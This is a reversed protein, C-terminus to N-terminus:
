MVGQISSLPVSGSQGQLQLSPGNSGSLYVSQVKGTGFPVAAVAQGSGDAATVNFTYNGAPAAQGASTTGDWNFTQVGTPLAGLPLTNVTQGASNQVQVQVSQAASALTFGGAAGGSAPLSISNNDFVVTQGVLNAAQLGQTQALQATLTAMSQQLGQVGSATSFQALQASLDQNSLPNMPDQNTLQTVLLKYFTNVDALGGLGSTTSGSTGSSSSTQLSSLFSNSSIPSTSM